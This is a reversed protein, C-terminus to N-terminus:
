RDLWHGVACTLRMWRVGSPMECLCRNKELAEQFCAFDIQRLNKLTFDTFVMMRSGLCGLDIWPSYGANLLKKVRLLFPSPSQNVKEALELNTIWGNRQLVTLRKVDTRDLTCARTM